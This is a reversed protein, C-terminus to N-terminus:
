RWFTCDNHEKRIKRKAADRDKCAVSGSVNRKRNHYVFFTKDGVVIKRMYFKQPIKFM